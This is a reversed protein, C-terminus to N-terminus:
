MGAAVAISHQAINYPERLSHAGLFGENGINSRVPTQKEKVLLTALRAQRMLLACGKRLRERVEQSSTKNETPSVYCFPLHHVFPFKVKEFKLTVFARTNRTSGPGM